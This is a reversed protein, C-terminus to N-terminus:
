HTRVWNERYHLHAKFNHTGYWKKVPGYWKKGTTYVARQTDFFQRFKYAAQQSCIKRIAFVILSYENVDISTGFQQSLIMQTEM